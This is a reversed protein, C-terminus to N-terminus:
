GGSPLLENLRGCRRVDAASIRDRACAIKRGSWVGCFEVLVSDGSFEVDLDAIDESGFPESLEFEHVVQDGLFVKVRHSPAPEGNDLLSSMEGTRCDLTARSTVESSDCASLICAIRLNDLLHRNILISREVQELTRRGQTGTSVADTTGTDSDPDMQATTGNARRVQSRSMSSAASMQGIPRPTPRRQSAGTEMGSGSPQEHEDATDESEVAAEGGQDQSDPRDPTRPDAPRPGANALVTEPTETPDHTLVARPLQANIAAGTGMIAGLLAAKQVAAAYAGPKLVGIGLALILFAGFLLGVAVIALLLISAAKTAVSVVIAAIVAGASITVSQRVSHGATTNAVGQDISINVGSTAGRGRGVAIGGVFAGAYLCLSAGISLLDEYGARLFEM